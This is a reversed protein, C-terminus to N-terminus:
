LRHERQKEKKEMNKIMTTSWQTNRKFRPNQHIKNDKARYALLEERVGEFFRQAQDQVWQKIIEDTKNLLYLCKNQQEIYSLDMKRVYM